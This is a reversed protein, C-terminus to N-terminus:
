VEILTGSDCSLSENQFPSKRPGSADTWCIHGGLPQLVALSIHPSLTGGAHTGSRPEPGMQESGPSRLEHQQQGTLGPSTSSRYWQTHLGDVECSKCQCLLAKSFIPKNVITSKDFYYTKKRKKQRLETPWLPKTRTSSSWAPDTRAGVPAWLSHFVECGVTECTADGSHPPAAWPSGIVKPQVRSSKQLCQVSM